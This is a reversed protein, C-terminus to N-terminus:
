LHNFIDIWLDKKNYKKCTLFQLLQNSVATNVM